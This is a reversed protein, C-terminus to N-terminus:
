RGIVIRPDGSGKEVEDWQKKYAQELEQRHRSEDVPATNQKKENETKQFSKSKQYHKTEANGPNNDRDSNLDIKRTEVSKRVPSEAYVNSLFFNLFFLILIATMFYKKM